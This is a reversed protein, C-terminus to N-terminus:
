DTSKIFETTDVIWNGDREKLFAEIKAKCAKENLAKKVVKINDAGGSFSRGQNQYLLHQYHLLDKDDGVAFLRGEQDGYSRTGRGVTQKVNEADPIDKSAIIVVADGDFRLDIGIFCESPLGIVGRKFKGMRNQL